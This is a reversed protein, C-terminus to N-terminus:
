REGAGDKGLARIALEKAGGARIADIVAIMDQVRASRDAELSVAREADARLAASVVDDVKEVAVTVGAVEVAGDERLVVRLMEDATTKATSSNPLDVDIAEPKLYTSTLLFFILLLFVVDVLPTVDLQARVRARGEFRM